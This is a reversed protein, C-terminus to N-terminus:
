DLQFKDVFFERAYHNKFLDWNLSEVLVMVATDGCLSSYLSLLLSVTWFRLWCRMIDLMKMKTCSFKVLPFLLKWLGPGSIKYWMFLNIFVKACQWFFIVTWPWGNVWSMILMNTLVSIGYQTPHLMDSKKRQYENCNWSYM